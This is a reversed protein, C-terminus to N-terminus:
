ADSEGAQFVLQGRIPEFDPPDFPVSRRWLAALLEAAERRDAATVTGFIFRERGPYCGSACWMFRPPEPM